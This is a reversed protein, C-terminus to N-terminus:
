GSRRFQKKGPIFKGKKMMEEKKLMKKKKKMRENLKAIKKMKKHKMEKARYEAFTTSAMKALRQKAKEKNLQNKSRKLSKLLEEDEDGDEEDDEDDGEYDEDESSIGEDEEKIDKTDVKMASAIVDGEEKKTKNESDNIDKDEVKVVLTGEEKVEDKQEKGSKKEKRKSLSPDEIKVGEGEEKKGKVVKRKEKEKGRGKLEEAEKEEREAMEQMVENLKKLPNSVKASSMKKLKCVFFGDMNEKHPSLRVALALSPHFRYSMYSTLGPSGFPIGTPVIKVDRKNLAYEIVEENEEVLVSCTSYVIIGAQKDIKISSGNGDSYTTVSSSKDKEGDKGKGSVKGKKKSGKLEAETPSDWAVAACDIAALLLEKQLQSCVIVDKAERKVRISADHSIVGTGTCPADLLVRSFFGPYSLPLLRGDTNVTISNSVGMRHMNAVHSKLRDKSVDNAIIVGTNKMLAAIYATKGGPACCMDLVTEGEQPALAMVPTFSSASQQMYHGALYEPTAGVPVDSSLVVLGVKSWEGLPDLNVGRNILARALERRHTKLTNTRLTLPRQNEQADLFQIAEPPSYLELFKGALFDNYGYYTKVCEKLEDMYSSRSRDGHLQKFNVLIRLIEQIRDKIAPIDIEPVTIKSLLSEETHEIEEGLQEAETIQQEEGSDSM